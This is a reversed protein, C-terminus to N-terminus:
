DIGGWICDDKAMMKLWLSSRGQFEADKNIIDSAGDVM